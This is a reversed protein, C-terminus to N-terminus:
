IHNWGINFANRLQFVEYNKKEKDPQLQRNVRAYNSLSAM